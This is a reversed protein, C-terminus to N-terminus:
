SCTASVGNPGNLLLRSLDSEIKRISLRSLPETTYSSERIIRLLESQTPLHCHAFNEGLGGVEKMESTEEDAQWSKDVFTRRRTELAREEGTAKLEFSMDSADAEDIMPGSKTSRLCELSSNPSSSSLREDKPQHCAFMEEISLDDSAKRELLLYKLRKLEAKHTSSAKTEAPEGDRRADKSDESRAADRNTEGLTEEHVERYDGVTRRTDYSRGYSQRDSNAHKKEEVRCFPVRYAGTYFYNAVQWLVLGFSYTDASKLSVISKLNISNDLYEPPCYVLPESVIKCITLNTCRKCPKASKENKEMEKEDQVSEKCIKECSRMSDKESCKLSTKRKRKSSQHEAECECDISDLDTSKIAYNFNALACTLNQKVIFNKANINRHVISAKRQNSSIELHLHNLGSSASLMLGLMQQETLAPKSRLFSELSGLQHYGTVTLYHTQGLQSDCFESKAVFNLINEHRILIIKYIKVENLWLQKAREGRYIKVFVEMGHRRARHKSLFKGSSLEREFALENFLSLPKTDHEATTELRSMSHDNLCWRQRKRNAKVNIRDGDLRREELDGVFLLNNEMCECRNRKRRRQIRKSQCVSLLALSIAVLVLVISLSLLFSATWESGAPDSIMAKLDTKTLYAEENCRDEHKCCTYNLKAM